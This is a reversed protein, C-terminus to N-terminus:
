EDDPRSREEYTGIKYETAARRVVGSCDPVAPTETSSAVDIRGAVIGQPEFDHRCEVFRAASDRLGSGHHRIDAAASALTSTSFCNAEAYEEMVLAHEFPADAAARLLPKTLALAHAPLEVARDTWARAEPLLEAHDVVRQVLGLQLAELASIARGELWFALAGQPGLRRALAWSTGVEPVLGLRGFAPVLSARESAIVIDCGIAFALGVGAAPGNLAAVFLKESGAITRVVGGFERRIWRFADATDARENPDRIAQSGAAIMELDGGASFARGAGTVIVSRVDADAELEDLVGRLQVMLGPSLCNLRREDNLVVMAMAGDREVIVLDADSARGRALWEPYTSM